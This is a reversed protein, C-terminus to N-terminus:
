REARIHLRAVGVSLARTDPNEGNTVDAPRVAYASRLAIENWGTRVLSAPVSIDTSWNECGQWVYDALPTGNVAVSLRQQQGPVCNPFAELTLHHSSPKVAVWAATSETGEAWRGWGEAGSWGQRLIMNFDPDAPPVRMVCIPYPWPGSTASPDFCRIDQLDPNQRAEVLMEEAYGGAVHFVVTGVGYFRLLPVLEPSLFAHPHEQLWRDLFVVHAPWVSSAGAVTPKGHYDTEWLTAGGIPMYLLNQQWSGLDITGEPVFTGDKIFDFAPHSPPPFPVNNTPPPILEVMLLTALVIQVWARRFRTLGLATLLYVAMGGLLAYRAFVRAREFFPAVISLLLGPLPVASEFPSPPQSTTFFDPKLAHGVRWLLTNVPQLVTWQLTEGNWKLTLGLALVLGVGACILVPWWPRRRWALTIGVLALLSAVLGLNAQGPENVPGRYLGSALPQLWPHDISPVFLSNLSADWLSVHFIDYFPANAAASERLFVVMWPASIALAVGSSLIGAILAEKLTIQRALLRGALWAGALLAGMWAFYLSSTIMAAWLLGAVVLWRTRHTTEGLGRELAWAMWPLAAAALMVNMHGTTRLWHFGWFTFLLAALTAPLAPVFLRALRLMGVFSAFLALLTTVNYAFAAGGLWYLPLLVLFLFPGGAYTTVRWGEPYFALPYVLLDHQGRLASDYWRMMWLVELVDDYAPLAHFLNWVRWGALLLAVFGLYPLVRHGLHDAVTPKILKQLNDRSMALRYTM